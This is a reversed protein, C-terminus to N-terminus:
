PEGGGLADILSRAEAQRYGGFSGNAFPMLAGRAEERRGMRVLCLARNYHAM